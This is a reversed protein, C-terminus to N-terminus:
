SSAPSAPSSGTGTVVTVPVSGIPQQPSVATIRTASVVTFSQAPYSGFLVQSVNVFNHGSITVPIGGVGSGTPPAVKTVVPLNYTFQDAAVAATTGATTTVQIDVTGTTGPPSVARISTASRVTFSSAPVGGFSVATASGLQVGTISVTTGGGVPGEDPTVRTVAPVVYTFQDAALHPSTGGPAVVQVDVPGAAGPPATASLSGASKVTFATAPTTGFLVQSAGTFSTGRVAVVTGGAVTGSAPSVASVTTGVLTYHDGAGTASTGGPGTVTVDVTGGAAAPSTVTLSTGTANVKTLHAPTSGFLVQTAGSLGTGTVTVTTGGAATGSTPHLGTVAPPAVYAYHDGAGTASTGGPGTVTVDVSGPGGAPSTATLTQSSTVVVNTAPTSGFDVATAGEFGTGNVTVTAGGAVPGVAPTVGTVTPAGLSGAWSGTDAVSSGQDLAYTGSGTLGTAAQTGDFTVSGQASTATLDVTGDCGVSGSVGGGNIVSGTVTMTGSVSAPAIAASFVFSGTWTGHLGPHAGSTWTGSWNGSSTAVCTPHGASAPAAPGLVALAPALLVLGVV